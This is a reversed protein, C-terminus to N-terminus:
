VRADQSEENDLADFWADWDYGEIEISSMRTAGNFPANVYHSATTSANRATQNGDSDFWRSQTGGLSAWPIEYGPSEGRKAPRCQNLFWHAHVVCFVSEGQVCLAIWAAEYSETIWRQLNNRCRESMWVADHSRHASKVEIVISNGGAFTASFDPSNALAEFEPTQREEFSIDHEIRDLGIKEFTVSKWRTSLATRVLHEAIASPSSISSSTGSM